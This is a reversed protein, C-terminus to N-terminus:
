VKRRRLLGTILLGAAFLTYTGPEPVASLLSSQRVTSIMAPSLLDLGLGDPTIDGLTTPTTRTGGATMLYNNGPTTHDLGLNHGLEHAITDLRGQGSNYAMVTDMAIALGGYGLWGEGYAGVITHVLFMDVTSTSPGFTGYSTALAVFGDGTVSDNLHSFATSNISSVFNFGVSIGAQAWIKNVSDEFYHNGSPGLSACNAGSNDCLQYVQVTLTRDITAAQSLTAALCLSLFLKRPLTLM